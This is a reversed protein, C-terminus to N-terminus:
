KYKNQSRHIREIKQYREDTTRIYRKPENGDELYLLTDRNVVYYINILPAAFITRLKSLSDRVSLEEPAIYEHLILTDNIYTWTGNSHSRISLFGSIETYTSDANLKFIGQDMLEPFDDVVFCGTMDQPSSTFAMLMLLVILYSLYQNLKM